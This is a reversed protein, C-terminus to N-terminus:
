LENVITPDCLFNKISFYSVAMKECLWDMREGTLIDMPHNYM